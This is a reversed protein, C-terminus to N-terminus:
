APSAGRIKRLEDTVETLGLTYGAVYSGHMLQKVHEPTSALAALSEQYFKEFDSTIDEKM